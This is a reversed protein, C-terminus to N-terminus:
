DSARSARRTNEWWLADDLIKDIDRSPQWGLLTRARDPRALLFPADGPRQGAVPPRREAPLGLLSCVREVLEHVSTGAGTGLNIVSPLSGGDLGFRLARVHAEALDVVHVYDRICTGDPTPYDRGFVAFDGEGLAWRLLLPIAHTEPEHEEGICALRDAGAANFFRLASAQLRAPDVQVAQAIVAEASRKTQAYPSEPAEVDGECLPTTGAPPAYIACTSAFLLHKVNALAMAELVSRTGGVNVDRYEEPRAFSDPINALAALHCVARQGALARALAGTDRVDLKIFSLPARPARQSHVLSDIVTVRAGARELAHAVASGVYGAGGTVAVPVGDLENGHM